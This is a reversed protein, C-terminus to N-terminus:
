MGPIRPIKGLKSLRCYNGWGKKLWHGVMPMPMMFARKDDRFVFGAGDGTDMVCLINLHEQYGKRQVLGSEKAIINFATNKAMVEAVHGQKARWDPGELAAVDGVAYVNEFGEVECYDNIKVYGAENKPLDSEVIVSHGTGAPIFMIMDAELTSDDEFVVSNPEFRKIKKGFYKAIDMKTFMKDMMDLAQKGMRAGPKQMPAFFSLEFNDRIKKRKLLNHVNFMLEFGPGGRVSSTDKPNGGFGFAMKGGGKAILEDIKAKIELSMEPKSCISLTHEIGKHKMKDAGMAIILYDYNEIVEGSALTIKKAKAEIKNVGDVKLKFGHAKALDELPVCIDEFKVKSTPVWISTPYIYFFDRDSVLTVDYNEKRLYTASDVGAFGGGLVVVKKAM